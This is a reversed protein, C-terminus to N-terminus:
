YILVMITGDKSSGNSTKFVNCLLQNPNLSDLTCTVGREEFNDLNNYGSLVSTQFFRSSLNFPFGLVCQGEVSGVTSVSGSNVGNYSNIISSVPGACRAKVMYKMIGNSTIPQKVSGEVYLGDVPPPALTEVGVTLGGNSNVHLKTQNNVQVRLPESGTLTNIHLKASPFNTGIGVNGTGNYSADNPGTSFSTWQSIGSLAQAVWNSGDFQLVDDNSAGNAALFEAQVAYPAASIRQRPSLVDYNTADIPRVWIELWIEDGDYIADGFDVEPIHLLGNTVFIDEFVQVNLAFGGSEVKYAYIEVDHKGNAPSGADLLQGQYSFGSGVTQAYTSTHILVSILLMLITKIKIKM